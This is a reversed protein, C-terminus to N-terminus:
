VTSRVKGQKCCFDILINFVYQGGQIQYTAEVERFANIADALQLIDLFYINNSLFKVKEFSKFFLKM